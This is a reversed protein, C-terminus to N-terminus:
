QLKFKVPMLMESQVPVGGKEAPIWLPMLKAVRLAEKVLDPHTFSATQATSFNSLSGDSEVVFKVIVTGEAKSSRANAPYSMNKGLFQYLANSGGPFEANKEPLSQAKLGTTSLSLLCISFLYILNKM